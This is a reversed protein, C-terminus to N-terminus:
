DCVQNYQSLVENLDSFNVSGDDNLDADCGSTVTLAAPGAVTATCPQEFLAWSVVCDYVAADNESVQTLVLNPTTKGPMDVGNKRWQYTYPADSAVVAFSATAGTEVTQSQPHGTVWPAGPADLVYTANNLGPSDSPGIVVLEGTGADFATADEFTPLPTPAVRERWAVGDWEWCDNLPNSAGDRGGLLVVVQRVADYELAARYRAPPTPGSVMPNVWVEGDWEWIENTAGGGSLGGVVVVRQRVTDYAMAHDTTPPPSVAPTKEALSQGDWVLTRNTPGSPESGGFYVTELRAADYVGFVKTMLGPFPALLTTWAGNGGVEYIGLASGLTLVDRIPDHELSPVFQPALTPGGTTPVATWGTPRLAELFVAGASDVRVM